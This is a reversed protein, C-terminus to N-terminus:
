KDATLFSLDYASKPDFGDPLLDVSELQDALEQWRAATMCGIRSPNTSVLDARMEHVSSDYIAAPILSNLTLLYPKIKQPDRMFDAWGRRVTAVIKKVIDPNDRIMSETTFLVDYPRYGLTAIRFQGVAIGAAEMLAPLYISLGQQVMRSNLRFLELNGTVPMEREPALKYHFKVWEWYAAGLSIAFPRGRLNIISKVAPDKHYVLTYPVYDLPAFVATVPVNRRRALLVEDAAAIGFEAQGALVQPITQIKPGGQRVVIKLGAARGLDEQQAQWYGGQDPQAFWDTLIRVTRTSKASAPPAHAVALISSSLLLLQRRSKSVLM